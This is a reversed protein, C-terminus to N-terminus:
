KRRPLLVPIDDPFVELFENVMPFPIVDFDLMDLEVLYIHTARYSLSILCNRYVNKAVISEDIPLSVYFPDLLADMFVDFQMAVYQMVFSLTDSPDVQFSSIRHPNMASFDMITTAMTGVNPTRSVNDERNAQTTMAQALVHFLAQCKDHTVEEIRTTFSCAVWSAPLSTPLPELTM